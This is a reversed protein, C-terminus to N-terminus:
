KSFSWFCSPSLTSSESLIISFDWEKNSRDISAPDNVLIKGEKTVGRLVIFHGGKTFHGPSMSVIIPHGKSLENLIEQPTSRSINKVKLNYKNAAANFISWATGAGPIYFGNSASWNAMTPPTITDNNLANVIMTLCTIGCGSKGITSSGYASQSWRGDLQSFYPVKIGGELYQLDGVNISPSEETLNSQELNEYVGVFMIRDEEDSFIQSIEEISKISVTITKKSNGEEDEQTGEEYNVCKDLFNITKNKNIKLDKGDEFAERNVVNNYAIILNISPYNINLIVDEDDGKMKDVKEDIKSKYETLIQTFENMSKEAESDDQFMIFPLNLVMAPVSVVLFVVASISLFITCLLAIVDKKDIKDSVSQCFIKIALFIKM